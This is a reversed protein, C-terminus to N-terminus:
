CVKKVTPYGHWEPKTKYWVNHCCKSLSGMVPADFAPTHSKKKGIDRKDERKLSDKELRYHKHSNHVNVINHARSTTRVAQQARYITLSVNCSM